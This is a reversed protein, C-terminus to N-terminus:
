TCILSLQPCHVTSPPLFHRCQHRHTCVIGLFSILAPNLNEWDGDKGRSFDLRLIPLRLILLRLILVDCSTSLASALAVSAMLLEPFLKLHYMCQNLERTSLNIPLIDRVLILMKISTMPQHIDFRACRRMIEDCIKPPKKLLDFKGEQPLVDSSFIFLRFHM